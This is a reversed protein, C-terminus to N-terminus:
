MLTRSDICSHTHLQACLYAVRCRGSNPTHPRRLPRYGSLGSTRKRTQSDAAALRAAVGGGVRVDQSGPEGATGPASVPDADLASRGEVIKAQFLMRRESRQPLWFHSGVHEAARLRLM